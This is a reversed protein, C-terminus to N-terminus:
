STQGGARNRLNAITRAFDTVTAPGPKLEVEQWKGNIRIVPTAVAQSSTTPTYVRVGFDEGTYLVPRQMLAKADGWTKLQVKQWRGKIHIMPTAQPLNGDTPTHVRVGFDQGAYLVAPQTNDHASTWANLEVEQWRGNIRIVPTAQPRNGKKAEYVRVGFDKGAYLVAQETIQTRRSASAGVVSLACLVGVIATHTRKL